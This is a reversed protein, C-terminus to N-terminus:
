SWNIEAQSRIEEIRQGTHGRQRRAAAAECNYSGYRRLDESLKSARSEKPAPMRQRFRGPSTMDDNLARELANPQAVANPSAHRV